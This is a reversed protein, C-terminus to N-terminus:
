GGGAADLVDTLSYVQVKRGGRRVLRHEYSRMMSRASSDTKGTLRCIETMDAWGDPVETPLQCARIAARIDDNTRLKSM